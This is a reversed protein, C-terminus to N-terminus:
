LIYETGCLFSVRRLHAPSCRGDVRQRVLSIGESLSTLRWPANQSAEVLPPGAQSTASLVHLLKSMLLM